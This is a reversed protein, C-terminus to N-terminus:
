GCYKMEQAISGKERIKDIVEEDFEYVPAEAELVVKDMYTDLRDKKYFVTSRTRIKNVVRDAVCVARQMAKRANYGIYKQVTDAAVNNLWDRVDNWFALLVGTLVAGVLVFGAAFLLSM